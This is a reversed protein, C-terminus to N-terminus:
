YSEPRDSGNRANRVKSPPPVTVVRGDRKADAMAMVQGPTLGQAVGTVVPKIAAPLRGFRRRVVESFEARDQEYRAHMREMRIQHEHDLLAMAATALTERAQGNGNAELQRAVNDFVLLTHELLM